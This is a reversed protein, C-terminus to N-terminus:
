VKKIINEKLIEYYESVDPMKVPLSMNTENIWDFETECYRFYEFNVSYINPNDKCDSIEVNYLVAFINDTNGINNKVFIKSYRESKNPFNKFIKQFFIDFACKWTGRQWM